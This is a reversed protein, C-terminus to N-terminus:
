AALAVWQRGSVLAAVRKERDARSQAFNARPTRAAHEGHTSWNTLLSWATFMTKDDVEIAFRSTLHDLLQHTAQPMSSVTNRFQEVGILVEQWRKLKPELDVFYDAAEIVRKIGDELRLQVNGVHKIKLQILDRGVVSTNACVWEYAGARIAAATSGDYSNFGMIRLSLKHGRVDIQHKPLVYQRFCRAGNHSIDTAVRLGTCDLGSQELAEDFAEFTVAYPILQYADTHISMTAGSDERFVRKYGDVKAGKQDYVHDWAVDFFAEPAHHNMPVFGSDALDAMLLETDPIQQVDM